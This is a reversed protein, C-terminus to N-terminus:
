GSCPEARVTGTGVGASMKAGLLKVMRKVNVVLATLVAQVHVRVLGRYRARRQGHHRAVEGLKREVRPHQRRVQEYAATGVKERARRYEAEYDNKTVKRGKRSRATQLCEARLPCRACTSGRFVYKWGTNDENRERQRTTQGAPCKLQGVGDSLVTLEFREPGFTQRPAQQPVPVTVELNLGEPNTLERLVAGNHGAGDMSLGEVNNGQAAEEQQILVVADAAELGNGAANGPLVNIATILESEPDMALDLVYGLFFGGHKGLRADPDHGSALRDGAKPDDQDQL